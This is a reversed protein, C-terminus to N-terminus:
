KSDKTVKQNLNQNLSKETSYNGNSTESEIKNRVTDYDILKKLYEIENELDIVLREEGIKDDDDKVVLILEYIHIDLANAIKRALSIKCDNRLFMKRLAVDSIGIRECLTSITMKKRILHLKIVEEITDM